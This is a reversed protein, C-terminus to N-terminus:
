AEYLSPLACDPTRTLLWRDALFAEADDLSELALDPALRCERERRLRLEALSDV